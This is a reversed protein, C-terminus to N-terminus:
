RDLVERVMNALDEARFPKALFPAHVDLLGQRMIAESVYGSMYLVKVTPRLQTVAAAVQPGNMPTMVVDTLLLDIPGGHGGAIGLAEEGSAAELVAYGSQRLIIRALTRVGADDEVLLVTPQEAAGNAQHQPARVTDREHDEGLRPRQSPAM